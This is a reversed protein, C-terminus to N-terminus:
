YKRSAVGMSTISRMGIPERGGAREAGFRDPARREPSPSPSPPPM